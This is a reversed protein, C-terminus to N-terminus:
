LQVRQRPARQISQITHTGVHHQDIGASGSLVRLLQHAIDIAHQDEATGVHVGGRVALFRRDVVQVRHVRSGIREFDVQRATRKIVTDRQEADTPPHLQHVDGRAPAEHLIEAPSGHVVDRPLTRRENVMVDGDFGFRPQTLQVGPLHEADTGTM